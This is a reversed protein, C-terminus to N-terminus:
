VTILSLSSPSLCRRWLRGDQRRRPHPSPALGRRLRERLGFPVDGDGEAGAQRLIRNRAVSGTGSSALGWTRRLRRRSHYSVPKDCWAGGGKLKERLEGLM